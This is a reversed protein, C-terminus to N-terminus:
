IGGDPPLGEESRSLIKRLLWIAYLPLKLPRGAAYPNMTTLVAIEPEYKEMYARLSGYRGDKGSHVEFPVVRGDLLAIFDVESTGGRWFRIESAGLDTLENLVFNEAMAGMQLAYRGSPNLIESFPVDCLARLIGVDSLYIKYYSDDTFFSLPLGPRKALRIKHAIGASTLWNLSAELDKARAGKKVHGFIFKRNEKSLQAPISDWVQAVNAFESGSAHRLIDSEYDRVLQRQLRDTKSLDGNALYEKVIRPMGGVMMYTKLQSELITEFSKPISTKGGSEMAADIIKGHGAARFFERFSMPRLDVTRIKGVPYSSGKSMYVGLLSGAAMVALERMDQDFYKLSTIARGCSQIEDLILVTEGPTIRKGRIAGLEAIIRRPDLDDDFVSSLSSERELDFYAVDEFNEETFKKLLYTKGCQRVGTMMLPSRNPDEKWEALEAYAERYM